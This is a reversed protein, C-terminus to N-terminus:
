IVSNYSRSVASYAGASLFVTKQSLILILDSELSLFYIVPKIKGASLTPTSSLPDKMVNSISFYKCQVNKVSLEPELKM